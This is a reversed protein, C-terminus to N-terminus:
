SVSCCGTPQCNTTCSSCASCVPSAGLFEDLNDLEMSGAPSDGSLSQKWEMILREENTM